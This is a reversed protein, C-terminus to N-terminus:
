LSLELNKFTGKTASIDVHIVILVESPDQSGLLRDVRVNLGTILNDDEFLCHLSSEDPSQTDSVPIQNGKPITLADLLTKLRNDIDGGQTVLSGPEEPRMLVIDLDAVLHHTKSVVASFMWDGVNRVVCMERNHPSLFQEAQHVLPSRSWLDALQPHFERRLQQKDGSSGNSKLRGRYHLRFKM